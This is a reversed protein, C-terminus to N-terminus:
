NWVWNGVVLTFSSFKEGPRSSMPIDIWGAVCVAQGPVYTGLSVLTNKRKGRRCEGPESHERQQAAGCILPIEM